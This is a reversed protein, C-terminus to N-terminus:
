LSLLKLRQHPKQPEKFLARKNLVHDKWWGGKKRCLFLCLVLLQLLWRVLLMFAVRKPYCLRCVDLDHVFAHGTKGARVLEHVRRQAWNVPILQFFITRERLPCYFYRANITCKAHWFGNKQQMCQFLWICCANNWKHLYLYLNLL